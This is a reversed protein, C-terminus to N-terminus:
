EGDGDKAYVSDEAPFQLSYCVFDLARDASSTVSSDFFRTAM